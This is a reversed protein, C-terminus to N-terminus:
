DTFIGAAAAGIRALPPRTRCLLLADLKVAAFALAIQVSSPPRVGCRDEKGKWCLFWRSDSHPERGLAFGIMKQVSEGSLPMLSRGAAHVAAPM